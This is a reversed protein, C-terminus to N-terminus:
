KRIKGIESIMDSHIISNTAIVEEGWNLVSNMDLNWPNGSFDSVMGGAEEIIIRGAAVDWPKLSYEWYGDLRGSAVYAMDLSAAGCRRIDHSKKLFHSYYSCYFEAREARDYAFGTALLSESISLVKSVFIRKDNLYSGLDKVAWFMENKICDYVIGFRIVNDCLFGISVAFHPFSHAFNVTGDLPDVIWIRNRDKINKLGEEAIISDDPFNDMINKEIIEQSKIDAATVPNARGKLKYDTNGFYKKIVEGAEIAAKKATDFEKM